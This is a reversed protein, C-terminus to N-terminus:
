IISRSGYLNYFFTWLAPSIEYYETGKNIIIDDDNDQYGIRTNRRYEIFSRLDSNDIEKPM